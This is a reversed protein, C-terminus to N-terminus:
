REVFACSFTTKCLICFFEAWGWIKKGKIAISSCPTITNHICTSVLRYKMIPLLALIIIAFHQLSMFYPLRHFNWMKFMLEKSLITSWFIFMCRVYAVESTTAGTISVRIRITAQSGTCQQQQSPVAFVRKKNMSEIMKINFTHM